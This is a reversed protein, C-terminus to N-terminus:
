FDFFSSIDELTQESGFGTDWFEGPDLNFDNFFSGWDFDDMAGDTLGAFPNDVMRDSPMGPLDIKTLGPGMINKLLNIAEPMGQRAMQTIMSIASGNGNGGLIGKLINGIPDGGAGSGGAGRGGGLPYLAAALAAKDADLGLKGGEMLARSANAPDFQFGGAHMLDKREQSLFRSGLDSLFRLQDTTAAGSGGLGRANNKAFLADLGLKKNAMFEPNSELYTAPDETMQRLRDQYYARTEQDVPSAMNAAQEGLRRYKDAQNHMQAGTLGGTLMSTLGGSGFLQSFIDGMGGFISSWDFSGSPQTGNNVNPLFTVPPGGGPPINDNQIPQDWDPVDPLPM